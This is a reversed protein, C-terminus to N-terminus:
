ASQVLDCVLILNVGMTLLCPETMLIFPPGCPLSLMFNLTAMKVNFFIDSAFM